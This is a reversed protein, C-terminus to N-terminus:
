FKLLLKSHFRLARATDLIHRHKREVRGNQQPRDVYSTQHVIGQSELYPGCQGKVFELANDSRMIKVQKEFQTAVFKLFSKLADFADFTQELLYVWTG